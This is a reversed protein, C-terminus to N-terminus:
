MTMQVFQWKFLSDDLHFGSLLSWWWREWAGVWRMSVCLDLDAMKNSLKRKSSYQETGSIFNLNFEVGRWWKWQFIGVLETFKEILCFPTQTQRASHSVRLKGDDPTFHLFTVVSMTTANINMWVFNIIEIKLFPIPFRKTKKPHRNRYFTHLINQSHFPICHLGTSPFSFLFGQPVRGTANHLSRETHRLIQHKEKGFQILIEDNQSAHFKVSKKDPFPFHGSFLFCELLIGLVRKSWHGGSTLM